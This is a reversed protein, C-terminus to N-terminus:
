AGVDEASESIGLRGIRRAGRTKGVCDVDDLATLGLVAAPRQLVRVLPLRVELKLAEARRVAPVSKARQAHQLPPLRLAVPRSPTPFSPNNGNQAVYSDVGNRTYDLALLREVHVLELLIELFELFSHFCSPAAFSSTRRIQIARPM